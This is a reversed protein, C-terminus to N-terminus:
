APELVQLKVGVVLDKVEARYDAMHPAALHAKLADLSEWKEVITVVNDRLPVQVPIDTPVDVNPGYELCGEEAHVKPVLQHFEDLFADRKGEAVEITAIVYIM